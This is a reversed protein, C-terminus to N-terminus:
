TLCRPIPADTNWDKRCSVEGTVRLQDCLEEIGSNEWSVWLLTPFNLLKHAWQYMFYSQHTELPVQVTWVKLFRLAAPTFHSNITHSFKCIKRQLTIVQYLKPKTPSSQLLKFAKMQGEESQVLAKTGRTSREEQVRGVCEAIWMLVQFNLATQVGFMQWWIIEEEWNVSCVNQMASSCLKDVSLLSIM